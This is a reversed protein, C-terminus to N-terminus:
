LGEFKPMIKRVAVAAPSSPITTGSFPVAEILGTAIFAEAPVAKLAGIKGGSIGIGLFRIGKKALSLFRKGTDKYHSNGGDILIDKEDLFPIIDDIIKDIISGAPLMILIKRPSENAAVFLDLSEFPLASNLEPYAKIKKFAM